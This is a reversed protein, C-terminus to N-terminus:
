PRPERAAPTPGERRRRAALFFEFTERSTKQLPYGFKEKLATNLLVPRYRLFDVQDPGYRTLRLLKGLALLGRLFWAPLNLVPKHLLQAIEPMSLAGDGAMNFIGTKNERIGKEIAALVDQDWIFVFPSPSGSVTLIRKGDFLRTIMNNTHAGLVTGPRFILQKLEPHSKRQSALLEEVIRKHASYSFSDNGRLPDTEVLGHPNDAHYGYAAGSSTVTIHQVGGALCAQLLNRTGNVDIDYDRRADHSPEVVCALHVVHTIHEDAILQALKPSRIDLVQIPFHTDQRARIDVGVVPLDKCLREGLQFGLYGSAGTILIKKPDPM